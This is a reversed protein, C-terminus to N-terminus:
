NKTTPVDATIEEVDLVEIGSEIVWRLEARISHVVEFKDYRTHEDRAEKLVAEDVRVRILYESM